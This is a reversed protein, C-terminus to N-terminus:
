GESRVVEFERRFASEGIREGRGNLLAVIVYHFERRKVANSPPPPLRDITFTTESTSHINATALVDESSCTGLRQCNTDDRLLWEQTEQPPQPARDVYIGFYGADSRREGDRGTVDFDRVSWSITVPLSVQARDKPASFTLRKDTKFDLGRVGCATTLALAFAVALRSGRSTV